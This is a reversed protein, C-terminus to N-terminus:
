IESAIGFTQQKFIEKEKQLNNNTIKILDKNKNTLNFIERDKNKALDEM